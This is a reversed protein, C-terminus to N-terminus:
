IAATTVASSGNLAAGAATPSRRNCDFELKAFQKIRNYEFSNKVGRQLAIYYGKIESNDPVALLEEKCAFWVEVFIFGLAQRAGMEIGRAGAAAIADGWFDSSTYYAHALKAEYAERAIPPRWRCSTRREVAATRHCRCRNLITSKARM